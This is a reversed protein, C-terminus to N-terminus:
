QPAFFEMSRLMTEFEPTRAARQGVPTSLSVLWRCGGVLAVADTKELVLNGSARAIEQTYDIAYGDQSGVRVPRPAAVGKGLQALLASQADRFAETTAQDPAAKLCEITIVPTVPGSAGAAFLADTLFQGGTVDNVYNPSMSWGQAVTIAYGKKLFRYTSGSVQVGPDPTPPVATPTAPLATATPHSGGSGGCGSAVVAAMATVAIAVAMVARRATAVFRGAQEPGRVEDSVVDVM